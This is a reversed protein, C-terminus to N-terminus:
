ADRKVFQTKRRIEPLTLIEELGAIEYDPKVEGPALKRNPNLWITKMGVNKAGLIDARYDDGVFMAQEPAIKLSRLAV